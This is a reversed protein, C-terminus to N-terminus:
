HAHMQRSQLSQFTRVIGPDWQEVEDGLTTMGIGLTSVEQHVFGSDKMAGGDGREM